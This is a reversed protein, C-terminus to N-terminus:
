KIGRHSRVGGIDVGKVLKRTPTSRHTKDLDTLRLLIQLDILLVNIFKFFIYTSELSGVVNKALNAMTLTGLADCAFRTFRKCVYGVM